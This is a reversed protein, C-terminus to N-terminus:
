KPHQEKMNEVALTKARKFQLFFQRADAENGFEATLLFNALAKECCELWNELWILEWDEDDGDSM